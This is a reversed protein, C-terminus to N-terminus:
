RWLRRSGARATTAAQCEPTALPASSSVANPQLERMINIPRTGCIRDLKLARLVPARLKAEVATEKAPPM